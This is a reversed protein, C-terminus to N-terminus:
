LLYPFSCAFLMIKMSSPENHPDKPAEISEGDTAKLLPWSVNRCFLVNVIIPICIHTSNDTQNDSIGNYPIYCEIVSCDSGVDAFIYIM